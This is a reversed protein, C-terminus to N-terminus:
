AAAAPRLGDSHWSSVLEGIAPWHNRIFFHDGEFTLERAAGFTEDRWASKERRTYPEDSGFMATIPIGLPQCRSGEADALVRLDARLVREYFEAVEPHRLVDASTGGFSLITPWFAERPLTWLTSQRSAISPSLSGSVYIHGPLARGLRALRRTLLLALRGGLSHGYLAYNPRDIAEVQAVLDDVVREADDLLPEMIRRGRGPRDLTILDLGRCSTELDLYCRADGGAYPICILAPGDHPTPGAGRRGTGIPAHAPDRVTGDEFDALMATLVRSDAAERFRVQPFRTRLARVSDSWQVPGTIQAALLRAHDTGYPRATLNAIVTSHPMEFQQGSLFAGFEVAIDAYYRSHFPKHVQLRVARYGEACALDHALSIADLPGSLVSQRPTNLNAIDLAALPHRALWARLAKADPGIVALMGGEPGEAMLEARRAVLKVGTVLDFAGAAELANYEGLSHGIFVTPTIRGDERMARYSLANVVFQAVQAYRTDGLFRRDADECVIRIDYGAAESARGVLLPYRSLAQCGMGPRQGGQGPFMVVHTVGEGSITKDPCSVDPYVRVERVDSVGQIM